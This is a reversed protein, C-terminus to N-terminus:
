KPIDINAEFNLIQVAKDFKNPYFSIELHLAYINSNEEKQSIDISKVIIEPMWEGIDRRIIDEIIEPSSETINEFLYEWVGSGFDTNMRREGRRTSLLMRLNNKAVTSDDFSQDFYGSKGMRIPINVGLPKTM